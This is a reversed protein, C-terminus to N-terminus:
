VHWSGESEDGTVVVMVQPAPKRWLARWRRIESSPQHSGPSLGAPRRSPLGPPGNPEERSSRPGPSRSGFAATTAAATGRHQRELPAVFHTDAVVIRQQRYALRPGAEPVHHGADPKGVPRERRDAYGRAPYNEGENGITGPEAAHERGVPSPGPRILLRVGRQIRQGPRGAAVPQISPPVLRSPPGPILLHHHDESKARVPQGLHADPANARGHAAVVYHEHVSACQRDSRPGVPPTYNDRSTGTRPLGREHGPQQPM